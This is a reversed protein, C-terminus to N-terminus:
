LEFGRHVMCSCCSPFNFAEVVLEGREMDLAVMRHETYEQRCKTRRGPLVGCSEREGDLQSGLCEVTQVTRVLGSFEALDIDGQVLYRQQNNTNTGVKPAITRRVSGCVNEFEDDFTEEASKAFIGSRLRLQPKPEDFLVNILEKKKNKKLARAIATSPYHSPRACYTSGDGCLNGKEMTGFIDTGWEVENDMPKVMGIIDTRTRNNERESWINKLRNLRKWRLPLNPRPVKGRHGAPEIVDADETNSPFVVSQGEIDVVTVGLLLLLTHRMMEITACGSGPGVVVLGLGVRRPAASTHRFYNWSDEVGPDM